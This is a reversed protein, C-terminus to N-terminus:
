INITLIIDLLFKYIQDLLLFFIAALAALVFVMLSGILVDKRTPWTVKFAEQKVSQVFKLPNFM